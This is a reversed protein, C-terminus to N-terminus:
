QSSMSNLRLSHYKIQGNKKNMESVVAFADNRGAMISDFTIEEDKERCLNNPWCKLKSDKFKETYEYMTISNVLNYAAIFQFLEPCLDLIGDRM